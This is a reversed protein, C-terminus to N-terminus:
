RMNLTCSITELKWLWCQKGAHQYLLSVQITLTKQKISTPLNTEVHGNGYIGIIFTLVACHKYCPVQALIPMTLPYPGTFIDLTKSLLQSGFNDKVTNIM